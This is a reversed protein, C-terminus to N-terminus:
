PDEAEFIGFTATQPHSGKARHGQHTWVQEQSKSSRSSHLCGSKVRWYQNQLHEHTMTSSARIEFIQAQLRGGKDM